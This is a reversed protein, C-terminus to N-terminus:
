RDNKYLEYGKEPLMNMENPKSEQRPRLVLNRTRFFSTREKSRMEGCLVTGMAVQVEPHEHEPLSMGIPGGHMVTMEAGVVCNQRTPKWTELEGVDVM